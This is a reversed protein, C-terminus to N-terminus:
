KALRELLEKDETLIDRLDRMLNLRDAPQNEAKKLFDLIDQLVGEPVNDLSKQIESKIENTTM